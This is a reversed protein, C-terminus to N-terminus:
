RDRYSPMSPGSGDFEWTFTVGVAGASEKMKEFSEKQQEGRNEDEVTVLHVTVEEDYAKHKVVTELFEMFNRIQYFLRIYPDTVTIATAGRLYPGLLTDFSVGKQNEKFMLHKEKLVPEAPAPPETRTPPTDSPKGSLSLGEAECDPITRHYYSPYEEEELTAVNRTQGGADFYSFHVAGYTSDIRMLQDKVRKRGEIAFRLLEEVEERTAEGGPFLIKM